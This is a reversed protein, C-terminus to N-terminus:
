RKAKARGTRQAGSPSATAGPAATGGGSQPYRFEITFSLENSTGGATRQDSPRVDAFASNLSMRGQIAPVSGWDAARGTITGKGSEYLSFTTVYVRQSEDPFAQTVDRLVDLVAPRGEFWDRATAVRETTARAAHVDTANAKLQAETAALAAETNRVDIWLALLAVAVAAAVGVVWAGRRGFRRTKPRALKPHLFDVADARRPVAGLLALALAPAFRGDAGASAAAGNNALGLASLDGGGGPRLGVGAQRVLADADDAGLGVGDYLRLTNGGSGAGARGADARPLTAVTRRLEGALSTVAATRSGNQSALDPGRVSLHRLLRPAGGRHASLEVADGSLNLVLGDVTAAPGVANLGGAAALALTTPTVAVAHCGAAEVMAVVRELQQRPLAMLLVNRPSSPHPAGAYDIAVDGLEASFLREAQMRLVEAAADPTAPPVERERAVLWRAPVGVVARSPAFGNSRLFQGLAEGAAKADAGAPPVFEAVRRAEWRDRAGRVPAVEAVTVSRDGVAIGLFSTKSLLNM